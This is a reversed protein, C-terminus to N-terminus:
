HCAYGTCLMSVHLPSTSCTQDYLLGTSHVHVPIPTDKFPVVPVSRSHDYLIGRKPGFGHPQSRSCHQTHFENDSRLVFISILRHSPHGKGM